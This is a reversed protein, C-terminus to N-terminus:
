GAQRGCQVLPCKAVESTSSARMNPLSRSSRHRAIRSLTSGSRTMHLSHSSSLTPLEDAPRAFATRRLLLPATAPLVHHALGATELQWEKRLPSQMRRIIELVATWATAIITYQSSNSFLDNEFQLPCDRRPLSGHSCTSTYARAIISTTEPSKRHQM